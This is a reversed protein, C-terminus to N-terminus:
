KRIKINPDYVYACECASFIADSFNKWFKLM